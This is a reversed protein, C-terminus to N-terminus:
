GKVSVFAMRLAHLAEGLMKGEDEELNGKTKVELVELTDIYHKAVVKDVTPKGTSPDPIQGLMAMAQTFMMSILTEFSAPPLKFNSEAAPETEAVEESASEEDAAESASEESEEAAKLAEKEKQVQEKWDEDVIIKPEDESSSDTM